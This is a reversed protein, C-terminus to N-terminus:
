CPAQFGYVPAHGRLIGFLNQWVLARDKWPELGVTIIKSNDVATVPPKPQGCKMLITQGSAEGLWVYRGDGLQADAAFHYEGAVAGVVYTGDFGSGVAAILLVMVVVPWVHSLAVRGTRRAIQPVALLVLFTGVTALVLPWPGLLIFGVVYIALLALKIGNVLSRHHGMADLIPAFLRPPDPLLKPITPPMPFREWETTLQVAESGLTEFQKVLEKAVEDDPTERENFSDAKKKLAELKEPLAASQRMLQQLKDAHHQRRGLYGLFPIAPLTTLGILLSGFGTAVLEAPSAAIALALPNNVTQAVVFSIDRVVVGAVPLLAAGLAIAGGVDSIVERGTRIRPVAEPDTAAM